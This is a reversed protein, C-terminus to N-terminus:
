DRASGLIAKSAKTVAADDFEPHRMRVGARVADWALDWLADACALKEAPTMARYRRLQLQAVDPAVDLPDLPM